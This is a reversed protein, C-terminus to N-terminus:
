MYMYENQHKENRCINGGVGCNQLYNHSSLNLMICTYVKRQNISLPKELTPFYFSKPLEKEEFLNDSLFFM